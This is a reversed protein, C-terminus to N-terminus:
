NNVKSKVYMKIHKKHTTVVNDSFNHNEVLMEKIKRVTLTALDINDMIEDIASELKSITPDKALPEDEDDSDTEEEDPARKATKKKKKAPVSGGEAKAKLVAAKDKWVQQEEESLARWKQGFIKALETIKKEPNDATVKPRISATFLMYAGPTRKKKGSKSKSKSKTKRKRSTKGSPVAKSVADKDPKTLFDVLTEMDDSKKFGMMDLCYKLQKPKLIEVRRKLAPLESEQVGQFERITRRRTHKKGNRGYLVRHLITLEDLVAMKVKAEVYPIEGLLHGEGPIYVHEKTPKHEVVFAQVEKRVRRSRRSSSADEKVEPKSETKPETKEIQMTKMDEDAMTTVSPPSSAPSSSLQKV